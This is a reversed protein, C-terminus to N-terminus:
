INRQENAGAHNKLTEEGHTNNWSSKYALQLLTSFCPLKAAETWFSIDGTVKAKLMDSRMIAFWTFGDQWVAIRRGEKKVFLHVPEFFYLGVGQLGQSQPNVRQGKAKWLSTMRRKEQVTCFSPIWGMLILKSFQDMLISCWQTKILVKHHRKFGQM